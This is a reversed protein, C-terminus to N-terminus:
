EWQAPYSIQMSGSVGNYMAHFNRLPTSPNALSPHVKIETRGSLTSTSIDSRISANGHPYLDAIISGSDTKLDTLSGHVLSASISGSNTRITSRYERNPIKAPQSITTTRVTISGSASKLDLTAPTSIATTNSSSSKSPLLALNINISSSTTHITLSDRLTFDGTIPGSTTSLYLSSADIRLPSPSKLSSIDLLSSPASIHIPNESRVPIGSPAFIPLSTAELYFSSLPYNHPIYLTSKIFVCPDNDNDEQNILVSPPSTITIGYEDSAIEVPSIPKHYRIENEVEIGQASAPRDLVKILITGETRLPAYGAPLGNSHQNKNEQSFSFVPKTFVRM